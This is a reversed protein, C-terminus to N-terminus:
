VTPGETYRNVRKTWVPPERKKWTAFRLKEGNYFARYARVPNNRYRYEDPMVQAFETLGCRKYRYSEIQHIVRMSAHDVKRQYRFRYEANLETALEKLWLFNDYSEDLWLVCPHQLHTPHYPVEFGHKSLTTCMMQASELIMKVVHQDCHYRACRRINRDLM